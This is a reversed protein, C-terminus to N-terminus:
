SLFSDLVDDIDVQPEDVQETVTPAVGSEAAVILRDTKVDLHAREDYPKVVKAAIAAAKERDSPTSELWQEGFEAVQDAHLMREVCIFGRFTSLRITSETNRLNCRGIFSFEDSAEELTALLFSYWRDNTPDPVIEKGQKVRPVFIWRNSDAPVLAADVESRPHVDITVINKPLQSEKAAKIADESVVKFGGEGDAVGRVTEKKEFVNGEDDRYVQKVPDGNPSLTKFTPAKNTSPAKINMLGGVITAPGYHVRFQGVYTDPTAM